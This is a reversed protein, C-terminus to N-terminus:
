RALAAVLAKKTRKQAKKAQRLLLAPASSIGWYALLAAAAVSGTKSTSDAPASPARRRVVFGVLM